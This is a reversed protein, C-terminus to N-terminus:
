QLLALVSQPNANAQSLISLGAQQLIQGKTLEATETAFDADRIRSRAASANEVTSALNAIASEFRNQVAGLSARESSITQLASDIIALADQAGQVTGIDVDAVTSATSAVATNAAVNLISGATEAVSSQVSYNEASNFTITGSVRTSDNGGTVLNTGTGNGA